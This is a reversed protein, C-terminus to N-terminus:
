HRRRDDARPRHLLEFRLEGRELDLELLIHEVPDVLDHRRARVQVGGVAAILRRGHRRRPTPPPAKAAPRRSRRRPRRGRAGSGRPARPPRAGYLGSRRATLVCNTHSPLATGVNMMSVVNVGSPTCVTFFLGARIRSTLRSTSDSPAFTVACHAASPRKSKTFTTSAGSSFVIARTESSSPERPVALYSVSVAIGISSKM